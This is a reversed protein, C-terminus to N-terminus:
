RTSEATDLICCWGHLGHVSTGRPVEQVEDHYTTSVPM